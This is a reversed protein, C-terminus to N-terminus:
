TLYGWERLLAIAKDRDGKAERYIGEPTPIILAEPSPRRTTGMFAMLDSQGAPMAPRPTTGKAKLRLRISKATETSTTSIGRYANVVQGIDAGESLAKVQANTLDKIQGARYADMPDTIFGEAKAYAESSVPQNVCDCKPHRDFGKSWRYFRGALIACRQCSPPNLVRVTGGLNKRSATMVGVAQRAADAVQLKTMLELFGGGSDLAQTTTAGAGIASKAETVAGYALTDLRRGDSAQGVLSEPRLDRTPQDRLDIEALVAPVYALAARSMTGQSERLVALVGPGIRRWSADFDDGMSAWLRRVENAATFNVRQQLAYFETAATPLM